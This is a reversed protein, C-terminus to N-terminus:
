EPAEDDGSPPVRWGDEAAHRTLNVMIRLLERLGCGGAHDRVARPSTQRSASLDLRWRRLFGGWLPGAPMSQAAERHEVM